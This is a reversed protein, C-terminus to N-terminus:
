CRAMRLPRSRRIGAAPPWIQASAGATPRLTSCIRRSSARSNRMRTAAPSSCRGTSSTPSVLASSTSVREVNVPTQAGTIPDYVTARTFDQVPYTETAADGVSDWALVKGNPLLAVHIGVVPWDVVPGWQGVQGPDAAVAAATAQSAWASHSRTEKHAAGRDGRRPRGRRRGSAGGATNVDHTHGTATNVDHALVVGRADVFGAPVVPAAAPGPPSAASAAFAAAGFLPAAGLLTASAVLRLLNRNACVHRVRARGMEGRASRVGAGHLIVGSM